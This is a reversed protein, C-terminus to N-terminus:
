MDATDVKRGAELESIASLAQPLLPANAPNAKLQERIVAGLPRGPAAVLVLGCVDPNDGTAAILAM